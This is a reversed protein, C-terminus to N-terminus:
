WKKFGTWGELKLSISNHLAAAFKHNYKEYVLTDFCKQSTFGSGNPSLYTFAQDLHVYEEQQNQDKQGLWLGWKEWRGKEERDM